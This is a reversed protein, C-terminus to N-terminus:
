RWPEMSRVADRSSPLVFQEIASRSVVCAESADDAVTKFGHTV